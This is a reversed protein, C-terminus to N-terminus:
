GGESLKLDTLQDPQQPGLFLNTDDTKESNGLVLGDLSRTLRGRMRRKWSQFM